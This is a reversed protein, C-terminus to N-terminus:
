AKNHPAPWVSCATSSCLKNQSFITIVLMSPGNTGPTHGRKVYAYFVPAAVLGSLGFAAEMVLMALMLFTLSLYFGDPNIVGIFHGM